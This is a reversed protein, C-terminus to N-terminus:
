CTFGVGGRSPKEEDSEVDPAHSAEDADAGLFQAHPLPADTHAHTRSRTLTHTDVWTCM